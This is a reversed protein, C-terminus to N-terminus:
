NFKNRRSYNNNKNIIIKIILHTLLTYTSINIYISRSLIFVILIRSVLNRLNYINRRQKAIM